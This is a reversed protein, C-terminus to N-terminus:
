YGFDLGPVRVRSGNQCGFGSGRCEVDQAKKKEQVKEKQKLVRSSLTSHHLIGYAKLVLGGRFSQMETFYDNKVWFRFGLSCVTIAKM